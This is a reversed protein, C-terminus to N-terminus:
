ELAQRGNDTIKVRAVEMITGDAVMREPHASALGDRMLDTFGIEDVRRLDPNDVRPGELINDMDLRRWHLDVVLHESETWDKSEGCMAKCRASSPPATPWFIM